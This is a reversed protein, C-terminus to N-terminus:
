FDPSSIILSKNLEKNVVSFSYYYVNFLLFISNFVGSITKRDSWTQPYLRNKEQYGGGAETCSKRGNTELM